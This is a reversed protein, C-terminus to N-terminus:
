ASIFATKQDPDPIWIKFGEDCYASIGDAALVTGATLSLLALAMLCALLTPLLRNKMM